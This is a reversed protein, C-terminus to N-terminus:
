DDLLELIRIIELLLPYHLRAPGCYPGATKKKRKEAAHTVEYLGPNETTRIAFDDQSFFSSFSVLFRQRANKESKRKFM